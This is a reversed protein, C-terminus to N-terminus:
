AGVIPGPAVSAWFSDSDEKLGEWYRRKKKTKSADAAPSKEGGFGVWLQGDAAGAAIIGTSSVVLSTV